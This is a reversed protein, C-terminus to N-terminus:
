VRQTLNWPAERRNYTVTKFKIPFDGMKRCLDAEKEVIHRTIEQIIEYM